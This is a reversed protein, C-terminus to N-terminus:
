RTLPLRDLPGDPTLPVPGAPFGNAKLLFAVIDLAVAPDLSGGADPPM